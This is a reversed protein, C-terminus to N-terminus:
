HGAQILGNNDLASFADAPALGLWPDSEPMLFLEAYVKANLSNLDAPAIGQVFWDNIQAHLLYENRVTDESISRQLNRWTRLLPNEVLRKSTALQSAQFATSNKSVILDWALNDLQADASHLLAIRAWLEDTVEAAGRAPETAKGPRLSKLLPAEIASKSFALRGAMQATPPAAKAAVLAPRAFRQPTEGIGAL